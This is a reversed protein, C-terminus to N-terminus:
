ALWSSGYRSLRDDIGHPRDAAGAYRHQRASFHENFSIFVERIVVIFFIRKGADPM